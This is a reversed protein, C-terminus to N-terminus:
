LLESIFFIMKPCSLLLFCGTFIGPLKHTVKLAQNSVGDTTLECFISPAKGM